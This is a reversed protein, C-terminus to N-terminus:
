RTSTMARLNLRNVSISDLDDDDDSDSLYQVSNPNCIRFAYVDDNLYRATDYLFLYHNDRETDWVDLLSNTKFFSNIGFEIKVKALGIGLGDYNSIVSYIWKCLYKMLSKYDLLNTYDKFALERTPKIKLSNGVVEISFADISARKTSSEGQYVNTGTDYLYNLIIVQKGSLSSVFMSLSSPVSGNPFHLTELDKSLVHSPETLSGINDNTGLVAVKYGSM